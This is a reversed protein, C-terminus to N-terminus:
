ILQIIQSIKYWYELNKNSSHLSCMRIITPFINIIFPYFLSFGFSIFTNEIFYIQTSSYISNLCTLYYWFVGLLIFNLIFFIIFKILMCKLRKKKMNVALIKTPQLKVELVDKDTLVLIHLILRLIFISIISSYLIQPLQYSFNYEGKDLIIQHM